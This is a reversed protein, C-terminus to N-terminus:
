HGGPAVEKNELLRDYVTTVRDRLADRAGAREIWALAGGMGVGEKAEGAEFREMAVHDSRDFQPDTVQLEADVEAALAPVAASDDEAVYTTTAVPISGALGAHRALALIALQQTGGWLEVETGSERAGLLLGLVVAQVPDGVRRIAPVPRNSLDGASLDSADLAAEVVSRKRDLPNEPLSSSVAAREGLAELVGMATTTGGPVTEAIAIRDEDLGAAYARAREVIEDADPVAIRDRVDDGPDVGLDVTPAGAPEALGADITTWQFGLLERAARTVVAPTPCGTPSVPVVPALVPRGYTVIEADASPTHYRLQPDAGAASIGDIAATDTTGAALIVRM